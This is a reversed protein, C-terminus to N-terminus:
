AADELDVPTWDNHEYLQEHAIVDKAMCLRQFPCGKYANCADGFNYDFARWPEPDNDEVLRAYFLWMQVFRYITRDRQEIFRAIVHPQFTVMHLQHDCEKTYIFCRRIWFEDVKVGKEQLRHIYGMFQNRLGWEIKFNSSSTKDDVLIVQGAGELILDIKGTYLIPDGTQPHMVSTPSAFSYEISPIGGRMLPRFLPDSLPYREFHTVLAEYCRTWQKVHPKENKEPPEYDGWRQTMATLGLDIANPESFGDRYYALRSTALGHAYCEGFHLDPDIGPSKLRQGYARWAQQACARISTLITSDIQTPFPILSPM